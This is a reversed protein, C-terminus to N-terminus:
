RAPPFLAAQCNEFETFVPRRYDTTDCFIWRRQRVIEPYTGPFRRRAGIEGLTICLGGGGDDRAEDPARGLVCGHRDLPGFTKGAPAGLQRFTVQEGPLQRVGPAGHQTVPQVIPGVRFAPSESM